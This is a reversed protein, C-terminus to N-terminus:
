DLGFARRLRADGEVDQAVIYLVERGILFETKLLTLLDECDYPYIWVSEQLKLFGISELMARLNGRTKRRREPIDFIVIRWQKDWQKPKPPRVQGLSLRTLVKRGASTLEATQKGGHEKIVVLGKDRLSHLSRSIRSSYHRRAGPVYKLLQLTNPAVMIAALIGAAGIASLIAHQINQKRIRKRVKGEINGM